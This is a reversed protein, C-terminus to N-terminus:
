RTNQKESGGHGGHDHPPQAGIPTFSHLLGPQRHDLTIFSEEIYKGTAKEVLYIAGDYQMYDEDNNVLFERAGVDVQFYQDNESGWEAVYFTGCDPSWLPEIQRRVIERAEEFTIISM